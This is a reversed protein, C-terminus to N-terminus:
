NLEFNIDFNRLVCQSCAYVISIVSGCLPEVKPLIRRLTGLVPGDVETCNVPFVSRTPCFSVRVLTPCGHGVM